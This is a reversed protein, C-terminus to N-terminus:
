EWYGLISVSANTGNYAVMKYDGSKPLTVTVSGEPRSASLTWSGIDKGDSKREVYVTVTGSGVSGLLQVKFTKTLGIYSDLYAEEKGSQGSGLNTILASLNNNMLVNQTEAVPPEAEAAFAPVSTGLVMAMAMLSVFLRQVFNNKKM